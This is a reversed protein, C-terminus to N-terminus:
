LDHTTLRIKKPDHNLHAGLNDVITEFRASKMLSIKVVSKQPENLTRFDVVTQHTIYEFFKKITPYRSYDHTNITQFILIAGTTIGNQYFSKNLEIAKLQTRKEEKIDIDVDNNFGMKKRIWTLLADMPLNLNMIIHGVYRISPDLPDYYKLFLLLDGVSNTNEDLVEELFLGLDQKVIVDLNSDEQTKSLLRWPRITGNSRKEFLWYRQKHKPIKFASEAIDKFEALCSKRLVQFESVKKTDVLDFYQQHEKLDNEVTIRLSMYLKQLAHEEKMKSKKEKEKEIEEKLYSPIESELVPALISYRETERIYVLLYASTFRKSDPGGYNQDIAERTTARTVKEDDYKLWENSLNPRIYAYYHGQFVTGSHVLVSHIHYISPISHSRRLYKGLDLVPPFTYKAHIKLNEGRTHDYEFRKLQLVLVPPFSDFACGKEADQFGNAEAFYQNDGKLVETETYLNFSDYVDNCGKVNLSLDYYAETKSSEHKINICNISNIQKGRFIKEIEGEVPTGKTQNELADCLLRNLEQVDHQTIVDQANWGFSETLKKTSVSKGKFQLQFFIKQLSKAISNRSQDWDTFTSMMYVLRRLSGLHFLAQLLSNLYCTAGQNKLGVYIIEKQRESPDIKEVHSELVQVIVNIKLSDNHLFAALNDLHIFKQYGWDRRSSNFSVKAERKQSLEQEIQNVVLLVVDANVFWEPKFLNCSVIELYLSMISGKEELGRPFMILRWKLDFDEFINSFIKQNINSFNEITWTFTPHQDEVMVDQPHYTEKIHPNDIDESLSEDSENDFQRQFDLKFETAKHM